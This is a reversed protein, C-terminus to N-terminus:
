RGRPQLVRPRWRPELAPAIRRGVLGPVARGHGLRTLVVEPNGVTISPIPMYAVLRGDPSPRAAVDALAGGGSTTVPRQKVTSVRIGTQM